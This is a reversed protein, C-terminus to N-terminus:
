YAHIIFHTVGPHQPNQEYLKELMAASKLQEAYTTDAHSAAAQMTLAYFVRAEYDDPYREVMRAMAAKYATLRANVPTKDHDRYYTSLADIWDRERETKAGLTRAKELEAWAANANERTPPGVLTNGLIDMAIGWHAMACSPDQRLVGEFTRRAITFWYSHIMAVGREFEAQVKVDCSTPFTLKGLKEDQQALAAGSLAAIVLGASLLMTSRAHMDTGESTTPILLGATKRSHRLTPLVEQYTWHMQSRMNSSGLADAIFRPWRRVKTSITSAPPTCRAAARSCRLWGATERWIWASSPSRPTGSNSRIPRRTCSVASPSSRSRRPRRRNASASDNVSRAPASLRPSVPMRRSPAVGCIM